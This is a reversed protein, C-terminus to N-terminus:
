EIVVMAYSRVSPIILEGKGWALADGDAGEPTWWHARDGKQRLHVPVTPVPQGSVGKQLVPLNYNVLHIVTRRSDPSCYASVRLTYPASVNLFTATRGVLQELAPLLLTDREAQAEADSGVRDALARLTDFDNYEDESLDFVETGRTPVLRSIDQVCLVTGDNFPAFWREAREEGFENCVGCEGVLLLKGGARCYEILHAVHSNALHRVDPLILV